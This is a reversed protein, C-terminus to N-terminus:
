NTRKFLRTVWGFCLSFFELYNLFGRKTASKAIKGYTMDPLSTKQTSKKM